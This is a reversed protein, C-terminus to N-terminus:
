LRAALRGAAEAVLKRDAERADEWQRLKMYTPLQATRLYVPLLVPADSERQRFLAMNFEEQCVKSAVYDPSLVCIVRRSADLSEFIHQQWSLGPELELRDVFARLDPRCARMDDLLGDVAVKDQHSYSIFADFRFDDPRAAARQPHREKVREFTERLEPSGKWKPLAVIKICDLTLGSSLWQVSEEALAELMELPSEGQDGAALLPMAIQRIPPDGTMLPIISRFVDGVVEPARGRVAPEFCLVRSVHLDPRSIPRSLWCSSFARLDVAMDLALDGVSVGVRHLDGILTGSIPSYDGPFASVVLVDVADSAGLSVLDGILLQVERTAEGDDVLITDILEM